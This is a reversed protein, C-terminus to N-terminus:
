IEPLDKQFCGSSRWHWLTCMMVSCETRKDNDGSDDRWFGQAPQVKTSLGSMWSGSPCHALGQWAGWSAGNGPTVEAVVLDGSSYLLNIGFPLYGLKYAEGPCPDETNLARDGLFQIVATHMAVATAMCLDLDRQQGNLKEQCIAQLISLFRADCALRGEKSVPLGALRACSLCWDHAHCAPTLQTIFPIVDAPGSCGNSNV